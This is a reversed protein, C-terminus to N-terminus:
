RVQGSSPRRRGPPPSRRPPRPPTSPYACTTGTAPTSGASSTSPSDSATDSGADGCGTLTVALLAFAPALLRLSMRVITPTPHHGPGQHTLLQAGACRGALTWAAKPSPTCRTWSTSRRASTTPSSRWGAAWRRSPDPRGEVVAHHESLQTVRVGPHDLLRGFGTAYPARDAGLIKSGADVVVRGGAHSVM